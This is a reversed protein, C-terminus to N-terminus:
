LANELEEETYGFTYDEDKGHSAWIQAADYVSLSEGSFDEEQYLGNESNMDSFWQEQKDIACDGCLGHQEDDYYLGDFHSEFKAKADDVYFKCGCNSCKM